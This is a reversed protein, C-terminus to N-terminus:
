PAFRYYFPGGFLGPFFRLIEHIAGAVQEFLNDEDGDESGDSVTSETDPKNDDDNSTDIDYPPIIENSVFKQLFLRAATTSASEAHSAALRYM